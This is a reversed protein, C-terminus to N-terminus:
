QISVIVSFILISFEAHEGVSEKNGDGSPVCSTMALESVGRVNDAVDKDAGADLLLRVCDTHGQEAALM